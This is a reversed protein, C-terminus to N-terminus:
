RSFSRAFLHQRYAWWRSFDDAAGRLLHRQGALSDVTAEAAERNSHFHLAVRAGNEAFQQAIVRGIGRSAGTILVVKGDFKM